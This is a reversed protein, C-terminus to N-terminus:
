ELLKRQKELTLSKLKDSSFGCYLGFASSSSSSIYGIKFYFLYFSYDCSLIDRVM